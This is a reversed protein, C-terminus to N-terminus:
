WFYDDGKSSGLFKTFENWEIAYYFSFSLFGINKSQDNKNLPIRYVEIYPVNMCFLLAIWNTTQSFFIKLPKKSQDGHCGSNKM